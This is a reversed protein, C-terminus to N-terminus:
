RKTGLRWLTYPKTTEYGEEYITTQIVGKRSTDCIAYDNLLFAKVETNYIECVEFACNRLKDKCSAPYVIDGTKLIVFKEKVM